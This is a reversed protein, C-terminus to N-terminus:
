KKIIKKVITQNEFSMRIFYIGAPLHSIDFELTGTGVGPKDGMRHLPSIVILKGYIDVVEINQIQNKSNTQIKPNTIQFKGRTPNPYIELEPVLMEEVGTEGIYKLFVPHLTSRREGVAYATNADTVSVDFLEIDEQNLQESESIWQSGGNTTHFILGNGVSWGHLLDFFEIDYLTPGPGGNQIGWNHGDQTHLITQSDGCAWGSNNDV